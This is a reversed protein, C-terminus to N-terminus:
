QNNHVRLELLSCSYSEKTSSFGTVSTHSASPLAGQFHSFSRRGTDVEVAEQRWGGMDVWLWQKRGSNWIARGM